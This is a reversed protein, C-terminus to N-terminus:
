RLAEALLLKCNWSFYREKWDSVETELATLESKVANFDVSCIYYQIKKSQVQFLQPIVELLHVM